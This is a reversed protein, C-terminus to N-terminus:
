ELHKSLVKAIETMFIQGKGIKIKKGRMEIFRKEKVAKGFVGEMKENGAVNIIRGDGESKLGKKAIFKWLEKVVDGRSIKDSSGLLAALQKSPKLPKTIGSGKAM